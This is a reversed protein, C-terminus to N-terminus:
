GAPAVLSATPGGPAGLLNNLEGTIRGIFQIPRKSLILPRKGPLNIRNLFLLPVLEIQEPQHRQAITM